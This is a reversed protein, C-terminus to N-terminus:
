DVALNKEEKTPEEEILNGLYVALCHAVANSVTYNKRDFDYKWLRSFRVEFVNGDVKVYVDKPNLHFPAGVKFLEKMMAEALDPIQHPSIIHDSLQTSYPVEEILMDEVVLFRVNMEGSPLSNQLRLAKDIYNQSITYKRGPKLFLKLSQALNRIDAFQSNELKGLYSKITDLHEISTDNIAEQILKKIQDFEHHVLAYINKLQYLLDAPPKELLSCFYSPVKEILKQRKVDFTSLSYRVIEAIIKEKQPLLGEELRYLGDIVWRSSSSSTSQNPPSSCFTNVLEMEAETSPSSNTDNEVESNWGLVDLDETKETKRSTKPLAQDTLLIYKEKSLIWEDSFRLNYQDLIELVQCLTDALKLVEKIEIIKNEKKVLQKLNTYSQQELVVYRERLEWLPIILEVPLEAILDLGKNPSVIRVKKQGYLQQLREKIVQQSFDTNYEMAEQWYDIKRERASVRDGQELLRLFLWERCNEVLESAGMRESTKKKLLNDLIARIESDIEEPYIPPTDEQIVLIVDIISVHDEQPPYPWKGKTLMEYFIVGLAYMDTRDNIIGYPKPDKTFSQEPALYRVTGAVTGTASSAAQITYALGFDILVPSHVGTGRFCINEPKIDRHVIGKQHVIALAQALKYIIRVIQFTTLQSIKTDLSQSLKEMCYADIERGDDVMGLEHIKVVGEHHIEQIARIEQRFRALAKSNDYLPVKVVSNENGPLSYVRSMGGQAYTGLYYSEGKESTFTVM